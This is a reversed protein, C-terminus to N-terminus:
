VCAQGMDETRVRPRHSWLLTASLLVGCSNGPWPALVLLVRCMDLCMGLRMDLRMGLRMGLRMDLQMDGRIDLCMDGCMDGHMDLCMDLRLRHALSLLVRGTRARVGRGYAGRM